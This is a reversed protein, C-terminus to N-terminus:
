RDRLCFQGEPVVVPQSRLAAAQAWFDLAPSCTVDPL